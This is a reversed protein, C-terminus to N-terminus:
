FARFCDLFGSFSMELIKSFTKIAHGQRILFETAFILGIQLSDPVSLKVRRAPGPVPSFLLHFLIKRMQIIRSPTEVEERSTENIKSPRSVLIVKGNATLGFNGSKQQLAPYVGNGYLDTM